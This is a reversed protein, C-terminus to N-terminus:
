LKSFLEVVRNMLEDKTGVSEENSYGKYEKIRYMSDKYNVLLLGDVSPYGGMEKFSYSTMSSEGYLSVVKGDISSFVVDMKVCYSKDYKKYKFGEFQSLLDIVELIGAEAQKLSDLRERERQEKFARESAEKEAKCSKEFAEKEALNRKLLFVRELYSAEM